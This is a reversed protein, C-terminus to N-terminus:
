NYVGTLTLNYHEKFCKMMWVDSILPYQCHGGPTSSDRLIYRNYHSDTDNKVWYGTLYDLDKVRGTCERYRVVLAMQQRHAGTMEVNYTWIHNSKAVYLKYANFNVFQLHVDITYSDLVYTLDVVCEVLYTGNFYDHVPCVLSTSFSVINVRFNAGGQTLKNDYLEQIEVRVEDTNNEGRIITPTFSHQHNTVVNTYKDSRTLIQEQNRYRSKNYTKWEDMVIRYDADLPLGVTNTMWKVYQIWESRGDHRPRHNIVDDSTVLLEKYAHDIPLM